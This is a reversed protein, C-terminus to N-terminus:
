CALPGRWNISIHGISKADGTMKDMIPQSVDFHNYKGTSAEKCIPNAGEPCADVVKVKYAETSACKAAANTYTSEVCRVEYCMGCNAQKHNDSVLNTLSQSFLSGGGNVAAYAKYYPNTEGIVTNGTLNPLGKDTWFCNGNGAGAVNANANLPNISNWGDGDAFYTSTGFQWDKSNISTNPIPTNGSPVVTTGSSSSTSNNGSLAETPAATSTPYAPNEVVSELPGSYSPSEVVPNPSPENYPKSCKTPSAMTFQIFLM